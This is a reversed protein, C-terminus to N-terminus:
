LITNDNNVELDREDPTELDVLFVLPVLDSKSEIELYDLYDQDETLGMLVRFLNIFPQSMYIVNHDISFVAQFKWTM